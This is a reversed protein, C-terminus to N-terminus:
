ANHKHCVTLTQNRQKAEWEKFSCLLRLISRRKQDTRRSLSRGSRSLSIVQACVARGRAMWSTGATSSLLSLCDIRSPIEKRVEWLVRHSSIQSLVDRRLIHLARCRCEVLVLFFVYRSPRRCVKRGKRSSRSAHVGNRCTNPQDDAFSLPVVTNMTQHPSTFYSTAGCKSSIM